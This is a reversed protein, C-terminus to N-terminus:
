AYAISVRKFDAMYAMACQQAEAAMAAPYCTVVDGAATHLTVRIERVVPAAPAVVVAAPEAVPAAPLKSAEEVAAKLRLADEVAEYVTPFLKRAKAEGVHAALADLDAKVGEASGYLEGDTDSIHNEQGSLEYCEPCLLVDGNDGTNRTNRGCCRCAYMGSGTAFRNTSRAM